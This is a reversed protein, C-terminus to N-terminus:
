EEKPIWRSWWISKSQSSLEDMSENITRVVKRQVRLVSALLNRRASGKKPKIERLEQLQAETFGGEAETGSRAMLGVVWRAAESYDKQTARLLQLRLNQMVSLGLLGERNFYPHALAAKAGTRQRAKYRVMSTLLEWGIGGDLDLIDFGRRLEPTARPEVLNRWAELDYNCRKLQRNFQILSSDTRLSPFAMQLFILGLSYIDFRDPLNLQWLVPSLATAVPASPASPTQTSMIYQEPAAYRPDLLFESPIYNIGVRLDAAAGLDIIKFTRSGESFIVNQPKVDRHVIGTSHLGDLAFLLQRMVTQIIKNERAIGKPLDQVDGLIKTEVNYPFEKSQMLDFLTDEGEYRWILWYEDAGKGKAKSERFGYIFDACSSACARRVRENMWIEVAGYETAKKVVVAGQKEAAKPDDLSAKYVVGFAGEGLKKGLVFEDKRFTPRFVREAFALVFMDFFGPAVGPTSWLYSAAALALAVGPATITLGDNRPLTSRYIVDGCAMVTCPLGVGVAEVLQRGLEGGLEATVPRFSAATTAPPRRRRRRLLTDHGPLFSTSLGLSGTAM